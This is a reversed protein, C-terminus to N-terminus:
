CRINSRYEVCAAYHPVVRVTRWLTECETMPADLVQVTATPNQSHVWRVNLTREIHRWRIRGVASSTQLGRQTADSTLHHTRHTADSMDSARHKWFTLTWTLMPSWHHVNLSPCTAAISRALYAITPCEVADLPIADSREVGGCFARVALQRASRKLYFTTLKPPKERASKFVQSM